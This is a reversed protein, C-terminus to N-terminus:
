CTSNYVSCSSTCNKEFIVHPKLTFNYYSYLGCNFFQFVRYVHNITNIHTTRLMQIPIYLVVQILKNMFFIPAVVILFTKLFSKYYSHSLFQFQFSYLIYNSRFDMKVSVFIFDNINEYSIHIM